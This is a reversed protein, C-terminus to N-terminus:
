EEPEVRSYAWASGKCSMRSVHVIFSHYHSTSIAAVFIATYFGCLPRLYALMYKNSFINNQQQKIFTDKWITDILSLSGYRYINGYVEMIAKLYATTRM